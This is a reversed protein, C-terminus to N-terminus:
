RRTPVNTAMGGVVSAVLGILFYTWATARNIGLLDNFANPEILWVIGFVTSVLGLSFLGSAHRSAGVGIFTLGVLIEILGMVATREYPGVATRAESLDAPVGTRALTVIAVILIFVGALAGVVAVLVGWDVTEYWPRSGQSGLTRTQDYGGDSPSSSM